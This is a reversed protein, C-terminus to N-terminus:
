ANGHAHSDCASHQDLHCHCDDDDDKAIRTARGRGSTPRGHSGCAFRLFSFFDISRVSADDTAPEKRVDSRANRLLLIKGEKPLVGENASGDM